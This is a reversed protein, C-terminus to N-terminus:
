KWGNTLSTWNGTDYKLEVPWMIRKNFDPAISEYELVALRNTLCYHGNIASVIKCTDEYDGVMSNNALITSIKGTFKGDQDHIIYNNAGTCDM